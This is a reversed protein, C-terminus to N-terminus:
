KGAPARQGAEERTLIWVNLIQGESDEQYNVVMNEGRLSAPMEITNDANFIRAAPSLTRTKGDIVIAPYWAPTMKGRKANPPFPRGDALAPLPLLFPLLLLISSLALSRRIWM